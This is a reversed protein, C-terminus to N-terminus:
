PFVVRGKCATRNTPAKAGLRQRNTRIREVYQPALFEAFDRGILEDRSYGALKEAAANVSLCNGHIDHVYIADEANEFLERYREESERLSAEVQVREAIQKM